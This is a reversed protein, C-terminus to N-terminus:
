EKEVVYGVGKVTKIYQVGLKDRIRKLYVSMTNDEVFNQTHNYILYAIQDRTVIKGISTFLLMIIKFDLITFNIEQGALLVKNEESYIVLQKYQIENPSYRKIVKDIRMLLERSKFPKTIFEEGIALGKVITDEDDHATLFIIPCKIQEYFDFSSGDPLTIDLIAVDYSNQLLTYAQKVNRAVEVEYIQNLVYTIGEIIASDDEVLLIKKM